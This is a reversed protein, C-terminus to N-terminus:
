AIRPRLLAVVWEIRRTLLYRRPSVGFAENLARAFHMKSVDSVGALRQVPRDEHSAADM